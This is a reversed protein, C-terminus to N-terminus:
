GFNSTTFNKSINASQTANADNHSTACTRQNQNAGFSNFNTSTNTYSKSQLLANNKNRRGNEASRGVKKRSGYERVKVKNAFTV